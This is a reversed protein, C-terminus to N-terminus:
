LLSMVRQRAQQFARHWSHAAAFGLARQRMGCKQDLAQAVAAHVESASTVTIVPPDLYRFEDHPTSIVPLGAAAFEYLKLPNQGKYVAQRTQDYLMFGIDANVLYAPVSEPRRPGIAHVNGSQERLEEAWPAQPGILLLSGGLEKLAVAAAHFLQPDGKGLVGVWVGLPRPLAAIDDPATLQPDYAENFVGQGLVTIKAPEIDHEEVLYNRLTEGIVFVHDAGQYDAREIAKISNGSFAPYYDVVQFVFRARPFQRRLAISGPNVAWIVDPKAIGSRQLQRGIGPVCTQYSLHAAAPTNFPWRNAYPVVSLPTFIWGGRDRRPGQQWSRWHGRRAFITGINVMGQMYAVDFGDQMFLSAYINTSCRIEGQWPTHRHFLISTM